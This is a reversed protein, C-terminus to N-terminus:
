TRCKVRYLVAGLALLALSFLVQSPPQSIDSPSASVYYSSGYAIGLGQGGYDSELTAAGSLVDISFVQTGSIGYLTGDTGSSLGYMNAVGFPGLATGAAGNDLDISILQNSASSLFLEGGNFALDGSAAFGTTGVASGLGSDLDITYLSRSSGGAGYLTGDAGFVLANGGSIGHAGILTTAATALDISYLAGFSIGYLNGSPDLAIDTLTVGLNGIVSVDGTTVDVQALNRSSDHVLLLPAASLGTTLSLILSTSAIAGYLLSRKTM